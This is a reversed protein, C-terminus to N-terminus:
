YLSRRISFFISQRGRNQNSLLDEENLFRYTAEGTWIGYFWEWRAQTGMTKTKNSTGDIEDCFGEIKAKSWSTVRWQVDARFGFFDDESDYDKFTNHGM